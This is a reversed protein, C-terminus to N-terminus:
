RPRTADASNCPRTSKCNQPESCAHVADTARVPSRGCKAGHLIKDLLAAQREGIEALDPGYSLLGGDRVIFEGEYMFPIRHTAAFQIVRKRNSATLGDVVM